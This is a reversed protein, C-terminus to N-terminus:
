REATEAVVVAKTKRKSKGRPHLDAAPKKRLIDVLGQAAAALPRDQRYVLYLRRDIHMEKLRLERLLGNAIEREV